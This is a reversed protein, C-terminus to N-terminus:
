LAHNNLLRLIRPADFRVINHGVLAVQDACSKLFNVFSRSAEEESVTPLLQGHRWLKGASVTFGTVASAKPDIRSLPVINASFTKDGCKAAIQIISASAALGSTEIDVIV